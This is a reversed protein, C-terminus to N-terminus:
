ASSRVSSPSAPRGAELHQVLLLPLGLDRVRALLGFLAAQDAVTGTLTTIAPREPTGAQTHVSVEHLWDSWEAQVRGQFAIRYVAPQDPRLSATTDMM